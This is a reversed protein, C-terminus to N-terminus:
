IYWRGMRYKREQQTAMIHSITKLECEGRPRRIM